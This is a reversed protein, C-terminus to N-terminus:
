LFLFSLEKMFNSLAMEINPCLVILDQLQISKLYKGTCGSKYVPHGLVVSIIVYLAVWNSLYLCYKM